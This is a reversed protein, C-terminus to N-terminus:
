QITKLFNFILDLWYYDIGNRKLCVYLGDIVIAFLPIILLLIDLSDTQCLLFYIYLASQIIFLARILIAKFIYYALKHAALKKITTNSSKSKNSSTERKTSEEENDFVNLNENIVEIKSEDSM